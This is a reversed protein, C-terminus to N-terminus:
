TKENIAKAEEELLARATERFEEPAIATAARGAHKIAQREKWDEGAVNKLAFQVISAAGATGHGDGINIARREWSLAAVSKAVGIADCFETHKHKWETITDRHVRIIGAFGTISLGEEAAEIIEDCYKPDYKTPRGRVM